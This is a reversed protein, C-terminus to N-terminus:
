TSVVYASPRGQAQAFCSGMSSEAIVYRPLSHHYEAWLTWVMGMCVMSM